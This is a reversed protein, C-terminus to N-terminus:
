QMLFDTPLRAALGIGPPHDQNSLKTPDISWLAALDVVDKEDPTADRRNQRVRARVERPSLGSAILASEEAEQEKAIKFIKDRAAPPSLGTLNAFRLKAEEPTQVGANAFVEGDAYAFVRSPKGKVARAWAVFDVVRYSGFFQVDDFRQILRSFLADFKRGVELHPEIAAPYPLWFGAALVWGSVPPSVFVWPDNRQSAGYPYAASLGSAWNAPVADAFGLADLVSIPDSAKLAFWSIKYGFSQPTDPTRNFSPMVGVRALAPSASAVAGFARTAIQLFDRRRM